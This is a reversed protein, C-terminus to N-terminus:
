LLVEEGRPQDLAEILEAIVLEVLVPARSARRIADGDPSRAVVGRCDGSHRPEDVSDPEIGHIGSGERVAQREFRISRREGDGVVGVLERVEERLALAAPIARDDLVFSTEFITTM